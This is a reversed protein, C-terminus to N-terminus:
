GMLNTTNMTLNYWLYKQAANSDIELDLPSLLDRPESLFFTSLKIFLFNANFM